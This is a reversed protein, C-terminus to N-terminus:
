TATINPTATIIGETMLEGGRTFLEEVLEDTVGAFVAGDFINNIVIASESQEANGGGGEFATNDGSLALEGARISEAFTAPIIMEGKHITAQMDQPIESAGVAFSASSAESLREAGFAIVAGAAAAGLIPGVIPIGALANYASIAGSATETTIQFIAAAQGIKALSKHKSNQLAVLENAAKGANKVHENELITEIKNRKKTQLERQKELKTKIEVLKAANTNEKAQEEAFQLELAELKAENHLTDLETEFEQLEIKGELFEQDLEKRREAFEGQSLLEQEQKLLQNDIELQDAESRAEAKGSLFSEQQALLEENAAKAIDLRQQEAAEQAEIEAQRAAEKEEASEPIAEQEIAQTLPTPAEGAQTSDLTTTITGGEELTAIKANIGDIDNSISDKLGGFKAKAADVWGFGPANSLGSLKDFLAELIINIDRQFEQFFRVAKLLAIQIGTPLTDFKEVLFGIGAILATIALLLPNTALIIKMVGNFTLLAGTALGIWKILPQAILTKIGTIFFGLGTILPSLGNKWLFVLGKLGKETFSAIEKQNAEIADRLDDIKGIIFGLVIKATPLLANGLAIKVTTFGDAANSLMGLFTTSQQDMLNFFRGGEATLSMLATKVDNFSIDGAEKMKIVEATTVGLTKALEDLLPVGAQSFQNLDQGMLKGAARVQGFVLGLREVPVGVGAAINGLNELTPIIDKQAIGYALLRKTTGVLGEIEFPTKKAFEVIDALLDRAKDASGLMTTFAINFQEMNGAAFLASKGLDFFKKAIFALGAIQALKKLSSGLSNVQKETKTSQKSIVKLDGDVKKLAKVIADKNKFEGQLIIKVEETM